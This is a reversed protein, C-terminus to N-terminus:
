TIGPDNDKRREHSVIVRVITDGTLDISQSPKGILYSLVLEIARVNGRVAQRQLAGIVEDLKGNAFYERFKDLAAQDATRPM